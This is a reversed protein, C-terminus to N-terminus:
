GALRFPELRWFIVWNRTLPSFDPWAVNKVAMKMWFNQPPGTLLRGTTAKVWPTTGGKAFLENSDNPRFSFEPEFNVAGRGISDDAEGNKDDDLWQYQYAAGIFGGISFKNTLDYARVSGHLFLVLVQAM